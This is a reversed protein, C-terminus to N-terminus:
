TALMRAVLARVQGMDLPKELLPVEHTMLFDIAHPDDIGGTIMVTRAALQPVTSEIAEYLDVGTMSPMNVDCFLADFSEGSRLRALADAATEVVIIDHERSLARQFAAGVLRDDDIFLLRARRAPAVPKFAEDPAADRAALLFVRATTGRGPASELEIDGGLSRVIRRSIALGLGTGQGVPKTTFFPTFLRDQHEPAIGCGTDSVEVVVREGEPRIRVGIENAEYAGKPIAHAANVILNLLVQSVRSANSRVPPVDEYQRVVRARQRIEPNAMRLASDAVARLDVLRHEEDNRAFTSLDRAIDRIRRAGEDVEALTTIVESLAAVLGSVSPERAGLKELQRHARAIEESAYAVNAMVYALPNNIEHGVGAALTGVALMRDVQM